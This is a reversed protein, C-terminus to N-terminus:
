GSLWAALLTNTVPFGAVHSVEEAPLAFHPQKVKLFQLGPVDGLLSRGIPGAILGVIFLLALLLLIGIAIRTSCGLRKLM